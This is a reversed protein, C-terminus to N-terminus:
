EAQQSLGLLEQYVDRAKRGTLEAVVAAARRPPLEEALRRLLLAADVQETPKEVAGAVLLVIEGRQQNPDGAVWALLAELPARRITEFAKTLERGLTAERQPGFISVLDELLSVIRHPAEYFITTTTSDVLSELRARRPGRKAPLFGEFVFRDTPLGSACLATTAACPGPLPIVPLDLAQVQRVLDFGPDSILPTGADSVLAISDGAAIRDCLRAAASAQSHEHFAVVQAEIGFHQLLQRCHRTDEAAILTAQSLVELARRSIDGLNGIPTPVIYLGREM